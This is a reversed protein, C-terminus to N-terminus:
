IQLSMGKKFLALLPKKLSAAHDNITVVLDMRPLDLWAIRLVM